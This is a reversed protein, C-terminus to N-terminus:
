DAIAEALGPLEKVTYDENGGAKLAEEITRLSGEDPVQFDKDGNIVLVPCEVKMLTPM